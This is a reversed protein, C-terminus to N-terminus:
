KKSMIYGTYCEEVMKDCEDNIAYLLEYEEIKYKTKNKKNFKKLDKELNNISCHSNIHCLKIKCKTQLRLYYIYAMKIIQQNMVPKGESNKLIDDSANQLWSDIWQTLSKWCLESDTILIVEAGKIKNVTIYSDIAKLGRMIAYIEAYNNTKDKLLLAEKYMLREDGYIRMAAVSDFTGDSQKYAGGDTGIIFKSM